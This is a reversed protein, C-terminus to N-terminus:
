EPSNGKILGVMQSPTIGFADSVARSFHAQDAFGAQNAAHSLNGTAVATQLALILRLWKRYSRLPLGTQETFWHSFRSPSLNVRAALQDRGVEGGQSIERKLFELLTAIKPGGIQDQRLTLDPREIRDLRQQLTLDSAFYSLLANVESSELVRWDTDPFGILLPPSLLATPDIYVSLVWGKRQRHRVGAKIVIAAAVVEVGDLDFAVNGDLGVSIQHAWHRHPRNDGTQGRFLGIGPSIAAEGHWTSKSMDVVETIVEM